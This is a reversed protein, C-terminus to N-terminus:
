FTGRRGSRGALPRASPGCGVESRGQQPSPTQSSAVAVPMERGRLWTESFTKGRYSDPCPLFAGTPRCASARRHIERLHRGRPKRFCQAVQFTRTPLFVPQSLMEIKGGGQSGSPPNLSCLLALPMARRIGKATTLGDLIEPSKTM